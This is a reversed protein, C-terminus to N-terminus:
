PAKEWDEYFNVIYGAKVFTRMDYKFRKDQMAEKGVIRGQPCQSYITKGDVYLTSTWAKMYLGDPRVVHTLNGRDEFVAPLIMGDSLRM